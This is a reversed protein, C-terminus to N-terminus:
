KIVLILSVWKARVAADNNHWYGSLVFDTSLIIFCQEDCSM